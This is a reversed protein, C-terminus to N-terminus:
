VDDVVFVGGHRGTWGGDRGVQKHEAFFNFLHIYMYNVVMYLINFVFLYLLSKCLSGERM